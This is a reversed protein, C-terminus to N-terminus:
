TSGKSSSSFTRYRISPTSCSMSDIFPGGSQWNMLMKNTAVVYGSMEHPELCGEQLNMTSETMTVGEGTHYIAVGGYMNQAATQNLVPFEFKADPPSGAPIVTARPRM